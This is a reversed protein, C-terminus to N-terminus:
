RWGLADLVATAREIGADVYGRRLSADFLGGFANGPLPEPPRIQVVEIVRKDGLDMAAKVEQLDALSWGKQRGLEELKLLAENIGRARHLDRYLRENILMDVLHSVLAVGSLEEAPPRFVASTPAILLVADISPDKGYDLASDIPANNVVGGDYCPGVGAIEVPAYLGPFASSAVAAKFVEDLRDQRDFHEGTFALVQEYTTAPEGVLDGAVGDLPAVVIHLDIPAPDAVRAPHINERLQKLLNKEDSLGTVGLLDRLNLDFAELFGARDRWMAIMEAAAAKERRARVGAAYAVGNLAGSSAAVIRGVPIERDAIVKLAGAEFAGKVVAGALIVAANRPKPTEM